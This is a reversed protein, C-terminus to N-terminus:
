SLIPVPSAVGGAHLIHQCNFQMEPAITDRERSTWRDNAGEEEWGKRAGAWKSGETGGIGCEGQVAANIM